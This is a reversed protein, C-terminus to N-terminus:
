SEHHDTDIMENLKGVFKAFEDSDEIFVDAYYFPKRTLMYWAAKVRQKLTFYGWNVASDQFSINYYAPDNGFKLKDVVVTSCLCDCRLAVSMVLDENKISKM